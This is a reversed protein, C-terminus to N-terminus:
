GDERLASFVRLSAILFLVLLDLFTPGKVSIHTHRTPAKGPTPPKRSPRPTSTPERHAAKLLKSPCPFPRRGWRNGSSLGQHPYTSLSPMIDQCLASRGAFVVSLPSLSLLEFTDALRSYLPSIRSLAQATGEGREYIKATEEQKEWELNQGKSM